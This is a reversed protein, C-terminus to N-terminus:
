GALFFNGTGILIGLFNTVTLALSTTIQPAQTKWLTYANAIVVIVLLISIQVVALLPSVLWAITGLLSSLAFSRIGIEKHSWERELGILLGIGTSALVQSILFIHIEM